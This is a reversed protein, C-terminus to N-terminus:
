PVLLEVTLAMTAHCEIVERPVDILSGDAAKM